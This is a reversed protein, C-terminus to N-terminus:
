HQNRIQGDACVTQKKCGASQDERFHVRSHGHAYAQRGVKGSPLKAMGYVNQSGDTRGDESEEEEEHQGSNAMGSKAIQGVREREREREGERGGESM